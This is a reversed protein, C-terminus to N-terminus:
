RARKARGSWVTQPFINGWVDDENERTPFPPEPYPSQTFIDPFSSSITTQAADLGEEIQSIMSKATLLIVPIHCYNQNEKIRKCLELGNMEPMMIDSIVIHPYSEEIMALAEKGNFAKVVIYDLSLQQELYQLVEQNDDALLVTQKNKNQTEEVLLDFKKSIEASKSLVPSENEGEEQKETDPLLFM